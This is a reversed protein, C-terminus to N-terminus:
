LLSLSKRLWILSARAWDRAEHRTTCTPLLTRSLPHPPSRADPKPLPMYVYTANQTLGTDAHLLSPSPRFSATEKQSDNGHPHRTKKPNVFTKGTGPFCKHPNKICKCLQSHSSGGGEMASDDYNATRRWAAWLPRAPTSQPPALPQM